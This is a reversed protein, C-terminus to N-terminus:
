PWIPPLLGLKRQQKKPLACRFPKMNNIRAQTEKISGAAGAYDMATMTWHKKLDARVATDAKRQALKGRRISRRHIQNLKTITMPKVKNVM